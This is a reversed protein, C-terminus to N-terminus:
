ALPDRAGDTHIVYLNTLRDIAHRGLEDRTGFVIILYPIFLPLVALFELIGKGVQRWGPAAPQDFCVTRVKVLYSGPAWGTLCLVILFGFSVISSVLDAQWTDSGDAAMMAIGLLSAVGKLIATALSIAVGDLLRAAVRRSLSVPRTGVIHSPIGPRASVLSPDQWTGPMETPMTMPPMDTSGPRETQPQGIQPPIIWGASAGTDSPPVAGPQPARGYPEDFESM